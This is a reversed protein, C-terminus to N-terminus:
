SNVQETPGEISVSEDKLKQAALAAQGLPTEGFDGLADELMEYTQRDDAELEAISNEIRRELERTRILKRLVKKPLSHEDKAEDYIEGIRERINRCRQMYKGRESLLESLQEEIRAVVDRVVAQNPFGNGGAQADM